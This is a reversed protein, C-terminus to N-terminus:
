GDGVSYAHGADPVQELTREVRALDIRAGLREFTERAAQLLREAEALDGEALSIRGALAAVRGSELTATMTDLAFTAKALVSRASELDSQQIACESAVRWAAAAHSRNGTEAALAASKKAADLARDWASQALLVEAQILYAETLVDQAGIANAQALCSSIAAQAQDIQGQLLLVHALGVTSNAIHFAMQAPLAAALSERFHFEAQDLDGQDRALSGLNNHVIVVGEVDGMEQRLTLSRQFFTRAKDWEGASVALIGLNSSTAAVGWTYGMKERLAMAKITHNLAPEWEGRRYYIGGLINEATALDNWSGARQAHERGVRGAHLAQDFHGQLFDIWALGTFIRAAEAQEQQDAPQGLLTLATDFHSRAVDLVGQKQATEGFRRYISARTYTPLQQSEVLSRNAELIDTSETFKGLFRYVDSLGVAIRWRLHDTAQPQTPLLQVVQQFYTLAEENACRAAAREGAVVLYNLAKASEGAQRYHYALVDAHDDEMGAWSAELAQAVALHLPERRIRFLTSYVISEILSHSFEWHDVEAAARLIGRSELELCARRIDPMHTVSELLRIDFPGGIVAAYQLLRKLELPLIDLRSRILARLSFPIPLTRPDIERDLDWRGERQQLYGHEILMRVIEEIYYPNGESRELLIMRLTSPLTTASVLEFLLEESDATSLRDLLLQTTQSPYLSQFKVLRHDATGAHEWRRACVFLVPSSTVMTSLFLLLEASMPDIWHLDDLLLVLRQEDALSKILTRLAVFLQQRLQEPELGALRETDQDVPRVGLLVEIYPRISEGDLPLGQLTQSIKTRIQDTTDASHLNFVQKLMDTFLSFASRTTKPSCRGSWNLTGIAAMLTAFERMLRSKGIGAEGEIWIVGGSGRTLNQALDVMALLSRERGILRATGGASGRKLTPHQRVGVVRQVALDLPVTDSALPAPEYIFLHETAARVSHTVYVAGPLTAEAVREAQMVPEGTLVLDTPSPYGPRGVVVDGQSVALSFALAPEFGPARGRLYEGIRWAAHVARETDDEHAVPVGFAIRIGRQHQAVQGQYEQAIDILTPMALALSEFVVEDDVSAPPTLNLWVIAATHWEGDPVDTRSEARVQELASEALQLDYAAGILKFLDIAQAYAMLAKVYWEAQDPGTGSALRVYLHGLHLLALGQQYSDSRRRSLEVAEHLLSEAQMYEGARARLIGLVRRCEADTETIEAKRAMEVAQGAFELGSHLDGTETLVLAQLWLVQIREDEGCADGHQNAVVLHAEAEAFREQVVALHALGIQARVIGYDDGLRQSIALSEELSRWALDHDGMAMRLLGLNLLNNALEPIYGIDRRIADSREFSEAAKRWVGRAYYLIGLNTYARAVGWSYGMAQYLNLSREVYGIATALDGRQWLIGGLTNYLSALTAPDDMNQSDLGLTAANALAYAEEIRGQRFRVWSMRDVLACWHQRYKQAGVAGLVALGDELYAISDDLAGERQRIDALERLVSLMMTLHFDSQLEQRQLQRRAEDLPQMAEAYKGVFKLVQGLGLYARFLEDSQQVEHERMLSLARRYHQIATENAYRRAANQAAALLFPIAKSPAASEAYHYALVEAQEDPPLLADHEIVQAVREHLKHRDRKLLTSYIAEQTLAHQFAYGREPGFPETVLFHRAELRNLDAAITELSAGDVFQLLGIPFSRGLVAAHQLTRRLSDSLRDFRSLILGKLTGPVEHVLEDAQGTLRRSGSNDVLGGRDILMRVIEEIYFPNGEAREAIRKRLPLSDLGTHGLLQDVLSQGEEESLAQLQVQVSLDRNKEITTMLPRLVAEHESDRSVLILMLPADITTQILFELFDRSAPDVWHLDEFVLVTPAIRAEALFVHRLATHMQRQLMSADLLQLRVETNLDNQGLGLLDNLYPLVDYTDLGVRKLYTRIAKRQVDVPDIESLHMINRMLDSALWLPISRAYALCHGEYIRVQPDVLTKRFEAVLRSKGLGAEGTLLVIRRLRQQCVEALTMHLWTLDQVRGIMPVHLDPLGRVWVPREQLKMPRFAQIPDRTGAPTISPAIRYTFLPVTRQYTEFSVLIAGPEAAKALQDALNVTDGIVTYEMQAANDLKGAIVLGTNMGIRLQFDFDYRHKVRERLPQLLAQMELGARVAREPDNEHALSAGFLAILGHGTFRDVTGEFKYIVDVLLRMTEDSWIFTAETDLAHPVTSAKTIDVCVVSVERREGIMQAAATSIKESLAAPMMTRLSQLM